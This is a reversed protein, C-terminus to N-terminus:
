KKGKLLDDLVDLAYCRLCPKTAFRTVKSYVSADCGADCGADFLAERALEIAQDMPDPDIVERVHINSEPKDIYRAPNEIWVTHQRGMIPDHLEIWFERPKDSM